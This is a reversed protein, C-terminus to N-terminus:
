PPLLKRPDLAKKGRRVEFHFFARAAEQRVKAIADGRRVPTGKPALIEGLYAYVSFLQSAHRVIVLNGYGEVGRGEYVVKGDAASRITSGPDVRLDVGNHMKEGRKGFSSVIQGEAPWSFILPGGKKSPVVSAGSGVARGSAAPPSGSKKIEQKQPLAAIPPISKEVVEDGNGIPGTKEVAAKIDEYEWVSKELRRTQNAGPILLKVGPALHNPDEIRNAAIIEELSVGYVHAIQVLTDGSEVRHIAGGQVHCGLFALTLGATLGRISCFQMRVFIEEGM